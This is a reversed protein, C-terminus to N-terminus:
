RVEYTGDTYLITIQAIHKGAAPQIPAPDPKKQQLPAPQPQQPPKPAQIQPKPEPAPPAQVQQSMSFIDPMDDNVSNEELPVESVRDLRTHRDGLQTHGFEDNGAQNFGDNGAQGAIASEPMDRYAKGTGMILWDPNLKPYAALMKSIFEFSPKNRGALLHSVGSRQVGLKDAFQSPSLGEMALFLKLREEM